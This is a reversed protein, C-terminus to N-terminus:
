SDEGVGGITQYFLLLNERRYAKVNITHGNGRYIIYFIVVLGQGFNTSSRAEEMKYQLGFVKVDYIDIHSCYQIKMM